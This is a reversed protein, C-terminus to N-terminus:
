TLQGMGEGVGSRGGSTEPKGWVRLYLATTAQTLHNHTRIRCYM